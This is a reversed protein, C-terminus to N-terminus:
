PCGPLNHIVNGPNACTAYYSSDYKAKGLNFELGNVEFSLNVEGNGTGVKNYTVQHSYWTNAQFNSDAKIHIDVQELYSSSNGPCDGNKLTYGDWPLSFITVSYVSLKDCSTGAGPNYGEIEFTPDRRHNYQTQIAM